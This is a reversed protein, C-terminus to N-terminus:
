ETSTQRFKILLINKFFRISKLVSIMPAEVIMWVWKEIFCELRGFYASLLITKTTM